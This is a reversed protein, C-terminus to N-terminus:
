YTIDAVKERKWKWIMVLVPILIILIYLVAVLIQPIYILFAGGLLLGRTILICTLVFIPLQIGIIAIYNRCISSTFIALLSLFIAIVYTLGVTVMILQLFSFDYWYTSGMFSNVGSKLFMGIDNTFYLSYYIGILVTTILLSSVLGAVLKWKFISRGTKSTYQLGVMNNKYDKIFIPSVMFLVSVLITIMIYKSIELFNDEVPYAPFISRVTGSDIVEEIRSQQHKTPTGEIYGYGYREEILEMEEIIHEREPIEWFLDIGEEFLFRDRAEDVAPHEMERFEKYTTIGEAALEPTEQIFQDAKRLEEEYVKKFDAFEQDDLEHGYKEVMEIGIRYDDTAPRGNPFYSINFEIFIYYMLVNILIFLVIMIPHFVKKLEQLLIRL